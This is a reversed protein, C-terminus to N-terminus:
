INWCDEGYEEWGDPVDMFLREGEEFEGHLFATKVDILWADLMWIMMCVILIRWTIDHIVPGFHHHFDIGPIESYGCAVLRARFIGNRKFKFVWKCKICRRGNPLDRRKMKRWVQRNIM